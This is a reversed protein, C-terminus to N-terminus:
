RFFRAGVGFLSASESRTRHMRALFLFMHSFVKGAPLKAFKVQSFFPASTSTHGPFSIVYEVCTIWGPRDPLALSFLQSLCHDNDVLRRVHTWGLRVSLAWQRWSCRPQSFGADEAYDLVIGNCVDLFHIGYGSVRNCVGSELWIHVIRRLVNTHYVSARIGISVCLFAGM